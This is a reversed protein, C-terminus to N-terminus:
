KEGIHEIMQLEARKAEICKQEGREAVERELDAIRKQEVRREVAIKQKVWRETASIIREAGVVLKMEIHMKEAFQQAVHESHVM